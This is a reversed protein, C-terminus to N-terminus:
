NQSITDQFRPDLARPPSFIIHGILAQKLAKRDQIRYPTATTKQSPGFPSIGPMKLGQSGSLLAQTPQKRVSPLATGMNEEPEPRFPRPKTVPSERKPPPPSPAPATEQVPRPAQFERMERNYDPRAADEPWEPMQPEKTEEQTLSEFFEELSHVPSKPREPSAPKSGGGKEILHKVLNVLGIVVFILLPVLDEM